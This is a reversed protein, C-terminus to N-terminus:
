LRIYHFSFCQTQTIQIRREQNLNLFLIDWINRIESIFCMTNSPFYIYIYIYLLKIEYAHIQINIFNEYMFQIISPHIFRSPCLHYSRTPKSAFQTEEFKWLLKKLDLHDISSETSPALTDLIIYSINKRAQDM